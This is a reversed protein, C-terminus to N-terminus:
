RKPVREEIITALKTLEKSMINVSSTLTDVKVDVTHIHNQAITMASDLRSSFEAFKKENAEKEWEVQQALLIAKGEVERQDLRSAKTDLDKGTLLQKRELDEQPSRFYNFIGFLTGLIGIIFMINAPTLADPM